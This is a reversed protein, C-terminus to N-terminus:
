RKTPQFAKGLLNVLGELPVLVPVALLNLWWLDIFISQEFPVGAFALFTVTIRLFLVAAFIIPWIYDSIIAIYVAFVTSIYIVLVSYFDFFSYELGIREKLAWSISNIFTILLVVWGCVGQEKRGFAMLYIPTIFNLITIISLIM